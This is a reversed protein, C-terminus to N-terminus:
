SHAQPLLHLLLYSLVLKYVSLLQNIYLCQVSQSSYAPSTQGDGPTYAARWLAGESSQGRSPPSSTLPGVKPCHGNVPRTGRRHLSHLRRRDRTHLFRRALYSFPEPVMVHRRWLLLLHFVLPDSFSVRKTAAPGGPRLGLPRGRRRPGGPMVDAARCAKLRSFAVVEDRSEVRITFSRPSCCLGGSPGHYLPQLPPVVSGWFIWVLPASLLKAPLESPLDTSSNHRPLSPASVHLTKSFIKVFTDVSLEDNQLIENPLVIQASFVAEAPSLNTDERPQARLGLLVFPLEESWTAAAARARLMDKICWHLRKVVGNSKPHYATTQKHSIHLM